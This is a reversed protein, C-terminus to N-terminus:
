AAQEQGAEELDFLAPTAVKREAAQLYEGGANANSHVWLHCPRCLLILNTPEARLERVQFSVVHHVHFEPETARNRQRHDKGCRECQADARQWVVVCAAKWEPSRYFEQREPTAGGKWNPNIDGRTGKLWHEGGTLHPLRPDRRAADALKALSEPRHTRGAFASRQGPKFQVALNSGRPRTPIGAKRLWWFVTKQDREFRRGIQVMNLREDWYLRRLEDTGPRQITSKTASV